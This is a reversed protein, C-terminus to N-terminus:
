HKYEGTKKVLDNVISYASNNGVNKQKGRYERDNDHKDKVEFGGWPLQSDGARLVESFPFQTESSVRRTSNRVVPALMVMGTGQFAYFCGKTM